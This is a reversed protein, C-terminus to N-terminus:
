KHYKHLFEPLYNILINKNIRVIQRLLEDLSELDEDILDKKIQELVADVLENEKAESLKPQLECVDGFLSSEKLKIIKDDDFENPDVSYFAEGGNEGVEILEFLVAEDKSQLSSIIAEVAEEKTDATITLPYPIGVFDAM